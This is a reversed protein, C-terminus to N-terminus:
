RYVDKRHGIKLVLVTKESSYIDYLVRYDGIRLRCQALEHSVLPKFQQPKQNASLAQIASIIKRQAPRSIKRLDKRARSSIQIRFM